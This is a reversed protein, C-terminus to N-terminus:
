DTRIRTVLASAIVILGSLLLVMRVPPLDGVLPLRTGSIVDAAAGTGLAALALGARIAVHFVAFGMVREQGELRSQLVSMATSLTVATAAGFALAGGLAFPIAPSLSMGAVIAGQLALSARVRRLGDQGLRRVLALGAAAGVGFLAVLLGFQTNSAGLVERVFVIGLSFLSGLGLAAVLAHPAVARVLPHRLADFFSPTTRAQATRRRAGKPILEAVRWVMAFSVLFSLADFLFVATLALRSSAAHGGFLASTAAFLGAGLPMTGYSSGLMLGNALPLDDDGALDPVAADRAPLFVLGAGELLFAWLYVWWLSRVLPILLVIVARAADMALMTRRRNWRGVIRTALPGALAAPALRLVLIAAVATSSRSLDLVLAMLAVTGMWDGLGSATQGILLRRFGGRHILGALGRDHDRVGREASRTAM